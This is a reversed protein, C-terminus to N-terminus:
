SSAWGFFTFTGDKNNICGAPGWKDDIRPDSHTILDDITQDPGLEIMMFESKEAITGTYGSNGHDYCAQEIAKVFADDSTRGTVTTTFVQSGM